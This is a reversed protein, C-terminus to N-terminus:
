VTCERVFRDTAEKLGKDAADQSAVDSRLRKLAQGFEDGLVKEAKDAISTVVSDIIQQKLSDPLWGVPDIQILGM